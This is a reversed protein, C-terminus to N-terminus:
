VEFYHILASPAALLSNLASPAALLSNLASPAALLYGPALALSALV